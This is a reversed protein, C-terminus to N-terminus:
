AHYKRRAYRIVDIARFLCYKKYKSRVGTSKTVKLSLYLDDLQRATLHKIKDAENHVDTAVGDFLLINWLIVLIVYAYWPM